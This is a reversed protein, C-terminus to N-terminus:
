VGRVRSATDEVMSLAHQKFNECSMITAGIHAMDALNASQVEPTRSSTADELIVVNYDLSLADYFTARVCNPTTTGALVVTTIGYQQLYEHLDTNFFASFRPKVLIRENALPSLEPVIEKSKPDKAADSIAKDTLWTDYRTIEVDSGDTAYSRVVHIIKMGFSRAASLAEACANVTELAHPVYLSSEPKLFGYQMDILIFACKNSPIM